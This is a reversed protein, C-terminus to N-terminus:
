DINFPQLQQAESLLRVQQEANALALQCIALLETGRQYTQMALDLPMTASEMQQIIAELEKIAAEYDPVSPQNKEPM